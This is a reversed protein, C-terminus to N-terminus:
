RQTRGQTQPSGDLLRTFAGGTWADLGAALESVRLELERREVQAEPALAAIRELARLREFYLRNVRELVQDRLEVLERRERSVAIARDPAHLGELEWVFDLSMGTSADRDHNRDVLEFVDGSNVAQDFDGTRSSAREVGFSAVLRPWLAARHARAEVGSIWRPSLELYDLAARQVAGVEPSRGHASKLPLERTPVGAAAPAGVPLRAVGTATAVWIGDAAPALAFANGELPAREAGRADAALAYVGRESALWSGNRGAMLRRLAGLAPQERRPEGAGIRWLGEPVCLLTTEGHRAAGCLEFWGEALGRLAPEFGGSGRRVWLAARTSAWIEGPVARIAVVDIPPLSADREFQPRSVAREFAGVETAVWESGDDAVTVGRVRAGAALAVHRPAPEGPSWAYLGRATAVLAGRPGVALDRVGGRTLALSWAGGDWAYLGRETGVLPRGAFEVLATPTGPPAGALWVPLGLSFWVLGLRLM